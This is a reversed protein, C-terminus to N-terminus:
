HFTLQATCRCLPTWPSCPTASLFPRTCLRLCISKIETYWPLITIWATGKSINASLVTGRNLKHRDQRQPIPAFQDKPLMHWEKPNTWPQHSKLGISCRPTECVQRAIPDCTISLETGMLRTSVRWLLAPFCYVGSSKGRMVVWMVAHQCQLPLASSMRNKSAYRPKIQTLLFIFTLPLEPLPFLRWILKM